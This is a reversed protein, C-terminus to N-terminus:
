YGFNIYDEEKKPKESLCKCDNLREGSKLIHEYCTWYYGHKECASQTNITYAPLKEKTSLSFIIIIFMSIIAGIITGIIIGKTKNDM